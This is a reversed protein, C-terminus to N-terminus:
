CSDGRRCPTLPAGTTPPTLEAARKGHDPSVAPLASRTIVHSTRRFHTM